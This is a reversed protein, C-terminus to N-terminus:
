HCGIKWCYGGKDNISVSMSGRDYHEQNREGKVDISFPPAAGGSCIASLLVENKKETKQDKEEKSIKRTDETKKIKEEGLIYINSPRRTPSAVLIRSDKERILCRGSDFKLTYGQDCIKSVSLINHKLDEVLLVNKEKVHESVLEVVGKRLIKSFSDYGFAVNGGKRNLSIFNNQDGTM